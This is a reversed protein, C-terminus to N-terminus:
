YYSDGGSEVVSCTRDYRIFNNGVSQQNYTCPIVINLPLDVNDIYKVTDPIFISNASFDGINTVSEPITIHGINNGGFEDYENCYGSTDGNHGIMTVTDPIIINTLGKNQFAGQYSLCISNTDNGEDDTEWDYSYTGRIGTVTVGNIKKPIVVNSGCSEDYDTIVGNSNVTFCSVDTYEVADGDVTVKASLTKGQMYNQNTNDEHIWIRLIYNKTIDPNSSEIITDRYMTLSTSTGIDKFTGTSLMVATDANYLGWRFDEDKLEDSITIDTLSITLNMHQSGTNTVSFPLKAAETEIESDVIPIPNAATVFEGETFAMTLNGTKVTYIDTNGSAVFYAYTVGGIILVPILITIISFITKKNVKKEEM